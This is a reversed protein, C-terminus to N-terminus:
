RDLYALRAEPTALLYLEAAVLALVPQGIMPQGADFATTYALAALLLQLAIVPGRAWGAVRWLGVAAAGLVAAGAAVIVIEAVARSLSAASSTVTLYLLVLAGLAVAGAEIGVVVAAWRLARPAETRARSPRPAAPEAAAGFLRDLVRRSPQPPLGSPENVVALNRPGVRQAPGAGTGEERADTGETTLRVDM